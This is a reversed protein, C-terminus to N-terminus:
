STTKQGKLKLRLEKLQKKQEKNKDRLRNIEEDKEALEAAYHASLEAIYDLVEQKHFGMLSNKFGEAM